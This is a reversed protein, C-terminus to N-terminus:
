PEQSEGSIYWKGDIKELKFAPYDEDDVSVRALATAAGHDHCRVGGPRTGDRIERSFRDTLVSCAREGDGDAIGAYFSEVAKAVGTRDSPEGGGCGLTALHSSLQAASAGGSSRASSSCRRLTEDM